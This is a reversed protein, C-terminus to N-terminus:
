TGPTVTRLEEGTVDRLVLREFDDLGRTFAFGGLDTGPVPAPLYSHVTGDGREVADIRWVQAGTVGALLDGMLDRLAVTHVQDGAPDDTCVEDGHPPIRLCTEGRRHEATVSFGGGGGLYSAVVSPDTDVDEATVQLTQMMRDLAEVNSEHDFSELGITDVFLTAPDGDVSTLDVLYVTIPTGPAYLGGDGIEYSLRVAQRGDVTTVARDEDRGEVPAAAQAYPVPDVYATIAAVREDTSDPVEFPEPHWQSCPEVVDGDNVVWGDPPVVSFGEPNECRDSDGDPGTTTTTDPTTTTTTVVTTTTTDRAQETDDDGCAVAGGLLLLLAVSSAFRSM